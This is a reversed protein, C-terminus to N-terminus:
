FSVMFSGGLTFSHMTKKKEVYMVETPIDIMNYLLGLTPSSHRIWGCPDYALTFNKRTVDYDAFIKWSFNQKYAWTLSLGTGFNTSSKAGVTFYDWECEYPGMDKVSTIQTNEIDLDGDVIAINMDMQKSNGTAKANLDLEQTFSRGILAKTGLALRKSLPINFYVGLDATFDTIHDSEITFTMDPTADEIEFLYENLIQHLALDINALDIVNSWGNIPTSKVRLRGGVGVYKNFFYAGQAGVVTSNRFELDIPQTLIDEDNFSLNKSGLGIGMSIEFFSPNDNISFDKSSVYRNLHRGKFIVDSLGYALETSLIGIGAGSLVDSIWHRNNLVRMVGTATAVGYGFISYWPSRTLGYEKHLITASVFATATHGSPWSNATSGDPRMEKATHKIPNVIAAMIGYSMLGSIFYRYLDSRGEVGALQLGSALAMPAFQTYNDIESKFNTVLRTNAHPNNYNQRFANKESKAIIGAVFLPIGVWTQDELFKYYKPKTEKNIYNKFFSTRNAEYSPISAHQTQVVSMGEVATQEEKPQYAIYQRADIPDGISYDMEPVDIVIPEMNKYDYAYALANFFLSLLVLTTARKIMIM